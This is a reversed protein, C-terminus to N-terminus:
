LTTGCGCGIELIHNSKPPNLKMVADYIAKNFHQGNRLFSNDGETEVFIKSQLSKTKQM